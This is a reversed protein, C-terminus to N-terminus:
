PHMEGCFTKLRNTEPGACRSIKGRNQIIQRHQVLGPLQRTEGTMKAQQSLNASFGAIRIIRRQDQLVVAQKPGSKAEVSQQALCRRIPLDKLQAQVIRGVGLAQQVQLELM